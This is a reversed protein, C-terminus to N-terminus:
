DAPTEEVIRCWGFEPVDDIPAAVQNSPGPDAPVMEADQTSCGPAEQAQLPAVGISFQIASSPGAVAGSGGPHSDSGELQTTEYFFVSIHAIIQPRHLSSNFTFIASSTSSPPGRYHSSTQWRGRGSRTEPYRGTFLESTPAPSDSSSGTPARRPQGRRCGMRQRLRAMLSPTIPLNCHAQHESCSICPSEPSHGLLGPPNGLGIERGELKFVPRFASNHFLPVCVTFPNSLRMGYSSAALVLFVLYYVLGLIKLNLGLAKGHLSIYWLLQGQLALCLKRISSESVELLVQIRVSAIPHDWVLLECPILELAPCQWEKFNGLRDRFVVNMVEENIFATMRQLYCRASPPDMATPLSFSGSDGAPSIYYVQDRAHWAYSRDGNNLVKCQTPLHGAAEGWGLGILNLVVETVRM